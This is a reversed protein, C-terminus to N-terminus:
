AWGFLKAIGRIDKMDIKYDGNIDAATAWRLHGPNSGFGKAATRIDKMDVKCDPTPIQKASDPEIPAGDYYEMTGGGIDEAVTIWFPFTYNLWIDKLKWSDWNPNKIHVKVEVLHACKPLLINFEEKHDECSKLILNHIEEIPEGDIFVYKNVIMKPVLEIIYMNPALEFVEEVHFWEVDNGFTVDIQDCYDVIGNQNTDEWSTIHWLDGPVAEGYGPKIQEWPTTIPTSIIGPIPEINMIYYQERILNHLTVGIEVPTPESTPNDPDVPPIKQTWWDVKLFVDNGILEIIFVHQYVWEGTDLNTFNLWDSQDIYGNGNDVWDTLM